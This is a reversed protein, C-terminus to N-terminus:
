LAGGTKKDSLFTSKMHGCQACLSALYWCRGHKNKNSDTRIMSEKIESRINPTKKQQYSCWTLRSIQPHERLFNEQEDEWRERQEASILEDNDDFRVGEDDHRQRELLLQAQREAELQAQKEAELKKRAVTARRKLVAALLVREITAKAEAKQKATEKQQLLKRARELEANDRIKAREISEMRSDETGDPLSRYMRKSPPKAPKAAEIASAAARASVKTPRTTLAPPVIEVLPKLSYAPPNAKKPIRRM